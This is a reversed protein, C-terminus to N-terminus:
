GVLTHKFKKPVRHAGSVCSKCILIWHGLFFDCKEIKVLRTEGQIIAGHWAENIVIFVYKVSRMSANM